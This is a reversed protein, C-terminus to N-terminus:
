AAFELAVSAYRLVLPRVASLRLAVSGEEQDFVPWLQPQLFVNTELTTKQLPLVLVTLVSGDELLGANEGGLYTL